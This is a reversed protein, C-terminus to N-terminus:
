LNAKAVKVRDRDADTLMAGRTNAATVVSDFLLRAKKPEGRRTLLLGYRTRAEIGTHYALLAEYDRCAEDLRGTGQLARAYALHAEASKLDPHAKQLRDLTEIATAPSGAEIEARALGTLLAADDAFVGQAAAKYLSIAEGWMGKRECERALALKADVTDAQEARDRRQRFERDPDIVDRVDSAVKQARRSQAVEPLLEFLVYAISGILPVM